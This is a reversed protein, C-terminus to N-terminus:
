LSTKKKPYEYFLVKAQHNAKVQQWDNVELQLAYVGTTAINEVKEDGLGNAFDTLGPNHGFLMLMEVAPSTSQVIRLLEQSSAHYLSDLWSIKKKSYGLQKAIKNATKAARAAPSSIILDPLIELGKLRKGMTPADEKGRKNLPRDFDDLSPDDWSSKAHRVLYLIKM